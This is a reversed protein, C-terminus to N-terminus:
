GRDVLNAKSAGIEGHIEVLLQSQRREHRKRKMKERKILCNDLCRWMVCFTEAAILATHQRRPLGEAGDKWRTRMRAKLNALEMGVETRKNEVGDKLVSPDPFRCLQSIIPCTSPEEDVLM